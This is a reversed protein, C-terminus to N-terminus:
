IWCAASKLEHDMIRQWTQPASHIGFPMRTFTWLEGNWHFCLKPQDEPAVVCQLFGSKMDIFSFISCDRVTDFISDALPLRYNDKKMAANIYRYNVCFRKDTWEKTVADRKAAIVVDSAYQTSSCKVIIGADRMECCKEDLVEKELVSKPRPKSFIHTNEDVLLPVRYPGLSGSYGPLDNLSYAFCHKLNALNSKLEDLQQASFAPHNGIVWGQETRECQTEPLVDITGHPMLGEIDSAFCMCDLTSGHVAHEVVSTMYAVGKNICSGPSGFLQSHLAIAELDSASYGLSTVPPERVSCATPQHCDHRADWLYYTDGEMVLSYDVAHSQSYASSFDVSDHCIASLVLLYNVLLAVLNRFAGQSHSDRFARNAQTKTLPVPWDHWHHGLCNNSAVADLYWSHQLVIAPDVIAVLFVSLTRSFAAESYAENDLCLSDSGSNISDNGGDLRGGGRQRSVLASAASWATFDQGNLGSDHMSGSLMYCDIGGNTQAIYKAVCPGLQALM